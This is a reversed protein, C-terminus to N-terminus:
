LLRRNTRWVTVLPIMVFWGVFYATHSEEKNLVFFNNKIKNQTMCGLSLGTFDTSQKQTFLVKCVNNMIRQCQKNPIEFIWYWRSGEGLRGDNIGDDTGQNWSMELTKTLSPIDELNQRGRMSKVIQFVISSQPLGQSTDAM